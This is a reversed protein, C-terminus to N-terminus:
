FSWTFDRDALWLNRTIEVPMAAGPRRGTLRQPGPHARERPSHDSREADAQAEEAAEAAARERARRALPAHDGRRSRSARHAAPSAKGRQPVARPRRQRRNGGHTERPTSPWLGPRPTEQPGRGA